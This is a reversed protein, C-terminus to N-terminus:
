LTSPASPDTDAAAPCAAAPATRTNGSCFPAPRAPSAVGGDFTWTWFAGAAAAPTSAVGGFKGRDAACRAPLGAAAAAAAAATAAAAAVAASRGGGGGGFGGGSAPPLAAPFAVGVIAWPRPNFLAAVEGEGAAGKHEFVCGGAASCVM